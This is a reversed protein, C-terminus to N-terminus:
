GLGTPDESWVALHNDWALESFRRASLRDLRDGSLLELAGSGSSAIFGDPHLGLGAADALEHARVFHGQADFLLLAGAKPASVTTTLFRPHTEVSATYQTMRIRLPEPIEWTRLGQGRQHSVVLPVSDRKAGQYQLGVTVRGQPSVALHRMSLKPDAPLVKELLAGSQADVYVLSPALADPNLMEREEQPHTYIGGNAVVLTRGDPMWRLEHSGIGHASIERVRRYGQERDYVGIVSEHMWTDVPALPDYDGFVNETVYLYRGQADFVAHGLYHRNQPCQVRQVEDRQVDRIWLFTGPRRAVLVVHARRPDVALGHGRQPLSASWDTPSNSHVWRPGQGLKSAGSVVSTEWPTAGSDGACGWSTAAGCVLLWERRSWTSKM